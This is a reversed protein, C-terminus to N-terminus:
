RSNVTFKRLDRGGTGYRYLEFVEEPRLAKNYIRLDDISGDMYEDDDRDGISTKSFQKTNPTNGNGGSVNETGNVYIRLRYDSPRCVFTLHHWQSTDLSRTATIHSNQGSNSYWFEPRDNENVRTDWWANAGNGAWVTKRSGTSATNVWASVTLGTSSFDESLSNGSNVLVYDNQSSDFSKAQGRVGSVYGASTEDSSSYSSWSDTVDGDFAWRSVASSSNEDNLPRAYDGNGWDYLEQIEEPSLARDYVRVESINADAPNSEDSVQFRPNSHSQTENAEGSSELEGNLYLLNKSGDFVGVAFVWEDENVTTNSYIEESGVGENFTYWEVTGDSNTRILKDISSEDNDRFTVIWNGSPSSNLKFWICITVPDKGSIDFDSSPGFLAEDDNGDFSYSTLGGKGAVGQTAGSVTGHNDNGSLDYATNGSDEHLPWWGVLGTM